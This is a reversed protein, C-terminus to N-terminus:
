RVWVQDILMRYQPNFQYNGVRKSLFDVSSENIMPAWPANNVIEHDIKAWLENAAGPNQAQVNLAHEIKADIKRNCFEALNNNINSGPKFSACTLLPEFFTSATPYDAIWNAYTIQVRTKSNYIPSAYSFPLRKIRAQYGLNNLLAQFYPSLDGPGPRQFTWYTVKMGKTGSAAVLAKAKSVNPANWAGSSSPHLTYPCYRQYGPFAPPLVQCTPPFARESGLLRGITARDIAYNLARRVRIDDFPPLRTNMVLYDTAPRPYVYLQGSFRTELDRLAKPPVESLVGDAQGQEVARMQKEPPISLRLIIQNPYGGPRATESWVRFRPNRVLKIERKPRFAKIMYPGTAPLPHTGVDRRPTGAPVPFAFPLALKYLFQPDHRLLHFTVTGSKDDAVIGRTLDCGKPRKVCSAAGVIGEYYSTGWGKLVFTRELARRFDDPKVLAGTSYHIGRHLQFTYTTGADTPAPLSTALDPVLQSGDSGGVRRYATLGDGVSFPILGDVNVASDVSTTPVAEQLRLTGGRHRRGSSRVAVFVGGATAAIGAPRNGVRITEVVSNRRPDIRTVTGQLDNTAWLASRSVALDSLGRGILLTSTVTETGEDIRM